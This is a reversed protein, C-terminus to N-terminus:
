RGPYRPLSNARFRGTQEEYRWAATTATADTAIDNTGTFPNIPVASLYPGLNCRSTMCRSTRGKSDTFLTMQDALNSATPYRGAHQLRYAHLQRRVTYLAQALEAQRTDTGAAVLGPGAMVALVSMAVALISIDTLSLTGPSHRTRGAM